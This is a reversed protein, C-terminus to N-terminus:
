LFGLNAVASYIMMGVASVVPNIGAPFMTPIFGLGSGVLLVFVVINIVCFSKDSLKCLIHKILKKVNKM